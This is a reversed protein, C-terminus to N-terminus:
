ILHSVILKYVTDTSYWILAKYIDNSKCLHKNFLNSFILNHIHSFIFFEYPLYEYPVLDFSVFSVDSRILHYTGLYLIIKLNGLTTEENLMKRVYQMNIRMCELKKKLYATLTQWTQVLYKGSLISDHIPLHLPRKIAIDKYKPFSGM